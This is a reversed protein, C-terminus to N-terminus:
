VKRLECGEKVAGGQATSVSRGKSASWGGVVCVCSWGQELREDGDAVPYLSGQEVRRAVPAAQSAAQLVPAVQVLMSDVCVAALLKAAACLRYPPIPPPARLIGPGQPGQAGPHLPLRGLHHSCMQQHPKLQIKILWPVVGHQVPSPTTPLPSPPLSPAPKLTHLIYTPDTHTCTCTHAHPHASM